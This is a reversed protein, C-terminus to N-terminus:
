RADTRRRETSSSMPELMEATLPTGAPVARMVRRGVVEDLMSPPLGSGPRQAILDSRRLVDGSSLERSATLSKRAWHLAAQEADVPAKQWGGFAAEVERIDKVFAPFTEATCSVKWDQADPVDVDLTIHKEIVDAGLAVAALPIASGTTHDSYGVPGTFVKRIQRMADLNVDSVNAPYSTVCHLVALERCGVDALVQVAKEVQNLTYMGTSLIIPKGRRGMDELFPWNEIEGSGIKFAVVNLVEDLFRFAHSDHPTCLFIIEKKRCYDAMAGIAEDAMEKSRMRERWDPATPGILSDTRFHQTKFADAGAQAALDILRFATDIEGFHNVGGEAIVFCRAGKGIRRNGIRVTNGFGKRM